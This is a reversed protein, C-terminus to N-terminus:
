GIGIAIGVGFGTDFFPIQLATTLLASTYAGVGMFGAHGLSFQGACGNVLNLSLALIFAIGCNVVVRLYYPNLYEDLWWNVGWLVAVIAALWIWQKWKAAM